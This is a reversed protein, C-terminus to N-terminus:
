KQKAAIQGGHMKHSQTMKSDQTGSVRDVTAKSRNSYVPVQGHKGVFNFNRTEVEGPMLNFSRSMEASGSPNNVTGLGPKSPQLAVVQRSMGLGVSNTTGHVQGGSVM